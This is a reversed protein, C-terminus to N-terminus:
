RSRISSSSTAAQKSGSTVARRDVQGDRVSWPPQRRRGQQLRSPAACLVCWTRAGWSDLANQCRAHVDGGSTISTDELGFCPPPAPVSGVTGLESSPIQPRSRLVPDPSRFSPESARRPWCARGTTRRAPDAGAAGPLHGGRQGPRFPRRHPRRLPGYRHGARWSRRPDFITRLPGVNLSHSTRVKPEPATRPGPDFMQDANGHDATM